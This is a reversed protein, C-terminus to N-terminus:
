YTSKIPINNKKAYSELYKVDGKKYDETESTLEIINKDFVIAKIYNNLNKINGEVREEYESQYTDEEESDVYEGAKIKPSDTMSYPSVKYNNSLKDGDIELAWPLAYIHDNGSTKNKVRTFSVHPKIEISPNKKVRFDISSYDDHINAKLENSKLIKILSDFSTWHYLTGVQKAETIEKLLNILKIM